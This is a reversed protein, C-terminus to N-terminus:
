IYIFFKWIFFNRVKIEESKVCTYQIATSSVSSMKSGEIVAGFKGRNHDFSIKDLRVMLNVKKDTIFFLNVNNCVTNVTFSFNVNSKLNQKETKRKLLGYETICKLTQLILHSTILSWETRLLDIMASVKVETAGQSRAKVILVGLFLPTGWTHYKKLMPPDANLLSSNMKCWCSETIWELNWHKDGFFLKGLSSEYTAGRLDPMRDLLVETRKFGISTITPEEPLNLWVSVTRLEVRGSVQCTNCFKEFWSNKRTVKLVQSKTTKIDDNESSHYFFKGVVWPQLLRHHYNVSLTDLGVYIYLVLEEYKGDIELKTMELLNERNCKIGFNDIVLSLFLQPLQTLPEKVPKLNTSQQDVQTNLMLCQLNSSFDLRNDEGMGNLTSNGVKLTFNKPIFPFFKFFINDSATPKKTQPKIHQKKRSQSFKYLGENIVSKVNVIEMYLKEVSLPGQAIVTGELSIGFSLEALCTQPNTEAAHKLLKATTSAISVNVLLTRANHIISGDLHLEAATAHVLWEPSEKRLLMANINYVHVAMFQVFTLIAPPIKQNHFSLNNTVITEEKSSYSSIDKNIRVDKVIVSVLKTVESSFFSSRFYLEEVHQFFNFFFFIILM